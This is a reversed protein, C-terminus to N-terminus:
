ELGNLVEFLQDVLAVFSEMSMNASTQARMHTTEDVVFHCLKLKTGNQVTMEFYSSTGDESPTTRLIAQGIDNEKEILRLVASLRTVGNELRTVLQDLRGSDCAATTLTLRMDRLLVGLRDFDDVQLTLAVDGNECSLKYPPPTKQKAFGFVLQKELEKQDRLSCIIKSGSTM